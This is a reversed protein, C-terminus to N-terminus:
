DRILIKQMPQTKLGKFNRIGTTKRYGNIQYFVIAFLSARVKIKTTKHKKCEKEFREILKKGIGQGHYNGLVFLNFIRDKRGRIVGIIKKNDIAVISISKLFKQELLKIKDGTTNYLNIYENIAKKSGEKNNYRLFTNKILISVKKTDTERFKRILINNM